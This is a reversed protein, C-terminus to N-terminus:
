KCPKELLKLILDESCFPEATVAIAACEKITKEREKAAVLDAFQVLCALDGELGDEVPLFTEKESIWTKRTWCTIGCQFALESVEQQNM